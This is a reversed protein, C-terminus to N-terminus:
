TSHAGCSRRIILETELLIAPQRVVEKNILRILMDAAGWGLGLPLPMAFFLGHGTGATPGDEVRSHVYSLSWGRLLAVQAPNM